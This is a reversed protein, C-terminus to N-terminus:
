AGVGSRRRAQIELSSKCKKLVRFDFEPMGDGVHAMALHDVMHAEEKGAEGDRWHEGAGEQEWTPQM